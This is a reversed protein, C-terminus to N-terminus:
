NGTKSNQCTEDHIGHAKIILCAPRQGPRALRPFVQKKFAIRCTPTINGIYEVYIDAHIM